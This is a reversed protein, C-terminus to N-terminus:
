AHELRRDGLRVEGLHGLAFEQAAIGRGQAYTHEVVGAVGEALRLYRAVGLREGDAREADGAGIARRQALVPQPMVAEAAVQGVGGLLAGAQGAARQAVFRGLPEGAPDAAPQGSRPEGVVVVAPREVQEAAQGAPPDEGGVAPVYGAPSGAPQM